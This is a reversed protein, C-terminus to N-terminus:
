RPKYFVFDASFEVRLLQNQQNAECQAPPMGGHTNVRQVHTVGAFVGAKSRSGPSGQSKASLLLWRLDTDKPADEYGLVTSVLSSGDNHTFSFNAGHQGVAKGSEDFLNAEPLRYIWGFGGGGLRECRFVQVGKANLRLVAIVNDPVKINSFFGVPPAVASPQGPQVATCAVLGFTVGLFVAAATTRAIEKLNKM